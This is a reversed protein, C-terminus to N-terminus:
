APLSITFSTGKGYTSDITIKGGLSDIKSKVVDMGVGRGSVSSVKQATSVGSKFILQLMDKKSLKLAEDDTLMKEKICKNVLKQCDIGKGDDRVEITRMNDEQKFSFTIHGEGKGLESRVDEEEIGHDVSNRIVHILVDDFDQLVDPPFIKQGDEIDFSVKKHLLRATKEAIKSYKRTLTQLPKWSLTKCGNVLKQVELSQSVTDVENILSEIFLINEKPVRVSMEEENGFITRIKDHILQFEDEMCKVYHIVREISQFHSIKSERLEEIHTEGEHAYTTMMHFGYSGANGKITHIDRYLADVSDKSVTESNLLLEQLESTLFTIRRETDVIFENLEEAPTNVIGLILAVENEHKEKEKQIQLEKQRNITEDLALIMVKSFNGHVDIISQYNITIYNYDYLDDESGPLKLERIPALRAIKKWPTRGHKTRALKLWMKFSNMKKEDMRLIDELPLQSVNEVQLIDNAKSSHEENVNGELDITLLGQDINDLIDKVQHTKEDVLDQLHDSYKKLEKKQDEIIIMKEHNEQERKSVEEALTNSSEIIYTLEEQKVPELRTDYHGRAIKLLDATINKLPKKLLKNLLIITLVVISFIIAFLSTMSSFLIDDKAKLVSERTYTVAIYGAKQDEVFLSDNKIFKDKVVATSDKTSYLTKKEEDLVTIEVIAPHTIFTNCIQKIAVDQMDWIPKPLIMKCLEMTLTAENELRKEAKDGFSTYQFYGILLVVLTTVLTLGFLLDKILTRKVINM